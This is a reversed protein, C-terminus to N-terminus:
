QAKYITTDNDNNKKALLCSAKNINVGFSIRAVARVRSMCTVKQIGIPYLRPRGAESVLQRDNALYSPTLSHFSELLLGLAIFIPRSAGQPWPRAELVVDSPISWFIKFKSMFGKLTAGDSHRGIWFLIILCSWWAHLGESFSQRVVNGHRFDRNKKYM